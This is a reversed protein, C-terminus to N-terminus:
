MTRFSRGRLQGGAEGGCARRAAEVQAEAAKRDQAAKAEFRARMEAVLPGALQETLPIATACAPCTIVLDSM